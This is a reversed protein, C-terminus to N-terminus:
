VSVVREGNTMTPGPGVEPALSTSDTDTEVGARPASLPERQPSEASFKTHENPCFTKFRKAVYFLNNIPTWFTGGLKLGNEEM